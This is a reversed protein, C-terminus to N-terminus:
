TNMTWVEATGCQLDFSLAHGPPLKNYGELICREGPVYGMALYCDLSDPNIRRPLAPDAMLAKLESSFHLTGEALHYFLPKEGARDRALFVRQRRADYLAFAFMGNLRALCDQGWVAYAALLVETDSHSHFVFGHESLEVRLDSHNYIEGNFVISLGYLHMPQHGAHSLELVALRTHGLGVRLDPSWWEGIGDPGRHGLTDIASSLWRQNGVALKSAIGVIGCM